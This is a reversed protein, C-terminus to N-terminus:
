GMRSVLRYRRLLVPLLNRNVKLESCGGKVRSYSGSIIGPMFMRTFLTSHDPYGESDITGADVTSLDSNHITVTSGLEVLVEKIDDGIGAM